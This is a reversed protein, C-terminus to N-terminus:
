FGKFNDPPSNSIAFWRSWDNHRALRFCQAARYHNEVRYGPGVFCGLLLFFSLFSCLSLALSLPPVWTSALFAFSLTPDSCALSM